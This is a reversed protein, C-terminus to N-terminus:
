VGRVFLIAVEGSAAEVPLSAIGGSVRFSRDTARRLFPIDRTLASAASGVPARQDGRFVGAGGQPSPSGFAGEGHRHHGTRDREHSSGVDFSAKAPTAAHTGGSKIQQNLADSLAGLVPAVYGDSANATPFTPLAATPNLAGIGIQENAISALQSVGNGRSVPIATAVSSNRPAVKVDGRASATDRGFGSSLPLHVVL